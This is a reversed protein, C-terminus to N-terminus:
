FLSTDSLKKAAANVAVLMLISAATKVIGVATAYSFNGQKMGYRYIYMDFVELSTMNGVNSFMYFQDFSSNFVSGSNLILLMVLTKTLNPLTIYWMRGLRSAGDIEAVEYMEPDISAIGSLFIISNYGVYHWLNSLWIMQWAYNRSGLFDIGKSVVGLKVLVQNIVGNEAALFAYFISYTISWSVFYPFFSLTQMAKKWRHSRMENLLLALLLAMTLNIVITVFNIALTNLAVAGADNMTTFFMKFYDLGKFAGSFYGKGPTYKWFAMAWGRLPVYVFLALAIFGPLLMCFLPLQERLRSYKFSKKVLSKGKRFRM